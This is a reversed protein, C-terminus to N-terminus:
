KRPNLMVLNAIQRFERSWKAMPGLPTNEWLVTRVFKIHSSLIGKPKPITWDAVAKEPAGLILRQSQSSRSTTNSSSGTGQSSAANRPSILTAFATTKGGEKPSLSVRKGTFSDQDETGAPQQEVHFAESPGASFNRASVGGSRLNGSILRWRKRVTSGTWILDFFVFTNPFVDKSDDFETSGTAWTRFDGYATPSSATDHGVVVDFLREHVRLAANCFIPSLSKADTTVTDDSDLDIVFAPRPDQDLIETISLSNFEDRSSVRDTDPGTEKGHISDTALSGRSQFIGAM